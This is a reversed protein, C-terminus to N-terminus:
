GFAFSLSLWRCSAAVCQLVICFVAVCQLVSQLVHQLGARPGLYLVLRLHILSVGIQLVSCCAAVRQLVSCCVRCCMNCVQAHVSIYCWGFTFSPHFYNITLKDDGFGAKRWLCVSVCVRLCVSVCVCLCVSVCGCLCVSVCVCLCVSV